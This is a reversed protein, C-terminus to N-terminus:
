WLLLANLRAFCVCSLGFTSACFITSLKSLSIKSLNLTDTTEGANILKVKKSLSNKIFGTAGNDEIYLSEVSSMMEADSTTNKANNFTKKEIDNGLTVAMLVCEKSSSLHKKIDNGSLLLNTGDIVVGNETDHISKYEYVSRPWIISKVEERCSDIMQIMNDDIQQGKHGLYRLVEQREIKLESTNM